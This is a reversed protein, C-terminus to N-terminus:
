CCGAWIKDVCDGCSKNKDEIAQFFEECSVEKFENNIKLQFKNSCQCASSSHIAFCAMKTEEPFSFGTKLEDKKYKTSDFYCDDNFGDVCGTTIQCNKFSDSEKKCLDIVNQSIKQEKIIFENSYITKETYNDKSLGYYFSFRYKGSEAIKGGIAMDWQKTISGASKLENPEISYSKGPPPPVLQICPMPDGLNKWQNEEWKYLNCCSPPCIEQIYWISKDSTNKIIITIREVQRYEAKDTALTVKEQSSANGSVLTISKIDNIGIGVCQDLDGCKYLKGQVEIKNNDYEPKLNTAELFQISTGDDFNLNGVGKMGSPIQRFIGAAKIEKGVCNEIDKSSVINFCDVEETQNNWIWLGAIIFVAIILIGFFINKTAM